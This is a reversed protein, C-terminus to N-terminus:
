PVDLGILHHPFVPARSSGWRTRNTSSPPRGPSSSVRPPWTSGGIRRTRARGHALGLEAGGALMLSRPGCGHASLHIASNTFFAMVLWLLVGMAFATGAVPKGGPASTGVECGVIVESLLRLAVFLIGPQSSAMRALLKLTHAEGNEELTPSCRGPSSSGRVPDRGGDRAPAARRLSAVLGKGRPHLLTVRFPQLISWIVGGLLLSWALGALHNSFVHSADARVIKRGRLYKADNEEERHEFSGVGASTLPGRHPPSRSFIFHFPFASCGSRARHQHSPSPPPPGRAIRLTAVTPIGARVPSRATPSSKSRTCGSAFRWALAVVVAVVAFVPLAYTHLWPAFLPWRGDVMSDPTLM